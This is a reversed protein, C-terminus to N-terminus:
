IRKLTNTKPDYKAFPEDEVDGEENSRYVMHDPTKFYTKGKWPFEELEITNVEEEEEEDEVEEEEEVVEEEEVEEDEEEEEAELGGTEEAIEAKIAEEDPEVDEQSNLVVSRLFMPQVVQNESVATLTPSPLKMPKMLLGELGGSVCALSPTAMEPRYSTEQAQLRTEMKELRSQLNNMTERIKLFDENTTTSKNQSLIFVVQKELVKLKQQIDAQLQDFVTQIVEM